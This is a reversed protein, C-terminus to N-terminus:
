KKRFRFFPEYNEDWGPKDYAVEWGAEQFISEVDLYGKEFIFDRTVACIDIIRQVAEKQPITSSYGDWREAILQNFALIVRSPVTKKVEEPTIPKTM